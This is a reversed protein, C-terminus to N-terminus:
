SRKPTARPSSMLQALCIVSSVERNNAIQPWKVLGFPRKWCTRADAIPRRRGFAEPLRRCFLPTSHGDHRGLVRGTRGNALDQARLAFRANNPRSSGGSRAQHLGLQAPRSLCAGPAWCSRSTRKRPGIIAGVAVSLSQAGHVTEQDNKAYQAKKGAESPVPERADREAPQRGVNMDDAASEVELDRDDRADHNRDHYGRQQPEQPTSRPEADSCAVVGITYARIARFAARGPTSRSQGAVGQLPLLALESTTIQDAQYLAGEVLDLRGTASLGLTPQVPDVPTRRTQCLAAM